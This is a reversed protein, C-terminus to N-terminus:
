LRLRFATDGQGVRALRNSLGLSASRAAHSSWLNSIPSHAFCPIFFARPHTCSPGLVISAAHGCQSVLAFVVRHHRPAREANEM